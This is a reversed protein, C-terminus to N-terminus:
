RARQEVMERLRAEDIVPTGLEQARRMKTGGPAEGVVLFDTNRSVADTVRGGHAEIYATAEERSMGPLTGTIVFTLGELPRRGEAARREPEMRVGAERMREVVRRNAPNAFFEVVSRAITPGIGEIGQLEEQRARM